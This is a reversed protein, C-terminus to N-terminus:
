LGGGTLGAFIYDHHREVLCRPYPLLRRVYKAKLVGLTEAFCLSTTFLVAHQGIYNRLALSGDEVVFLKVIASTYLYHTRIDAM